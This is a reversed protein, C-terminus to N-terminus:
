AAYRFIECNYPLMLPHAPIGTKTLRLAHLPKNCMKALRVFRQPEWRNAANAGWACIITDPSILVGQLFADNDPGTDWNAARLDAPKTARYAWINVILISGFGNRDAFGICKTVTHDDTLADATSPNLMVFVLRPLAEDWIRVLSYRYRGCDSLRAFKQMKNGIFFARM